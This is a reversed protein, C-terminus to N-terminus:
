GKQRFGDMLTLLVDLNDIKVVPVKVWRAKKENAIRLVLNGENVEVAHIAQWGYLTKGIELGNERSISIVGFEVPQGATFARESREFIMPLTKARIQELLADLGALRDDLIMRESNQRTLEIQAFKGPNLGRSFPAYILVKMARIEEWRWARRNRGNREVLGCEYVGVWLRWVRAARISFILALLWLILTGAVPIFLDQFIVAPGNWYYHLYAAYGGLGIWAAGGLFFFGALSAQGWRAWRPNNVPYAQILKGMLPSTPSSDRSRVPPM